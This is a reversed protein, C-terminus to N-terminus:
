KRPSLTKGKGPQDVKSGHKMAPYYEDEFGDVMRGDSQKELPERQVTNRTKFPRVDEVIYRNDNMERWDAGDIKNNFYNKIENLMMRCRQAIVFRETPAIVKQIIDDAEYGLRRIDM